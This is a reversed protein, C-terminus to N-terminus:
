KCAERLLREAEGVLFLLEERALRATEPLDALEREIARLRAVRDHIARLALDLMVHTAMTSASTM